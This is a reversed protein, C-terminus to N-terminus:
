SSEPRQVLSLAEEIKRVLKKMSFPKQVFDAVGRDLLAQAKEDMAYGSVMITTVKPNIEQMASFTAQGDMVPMVMDMIVLDIDRWNTRYFELAEGGNECLTARYGARSLIKSLVGRVVADDDVVLVHRGHETEEVAAHRQTPHATTSAGTKMSVPFYLDFRSGEGPSSEVCIAGNHHRMTGYVAPLGMGTGKGEEKTTFFPEFIRRKVDETMGDGEDTVSLLVFSGPEVDFLGVECPSTELDINLTEFGLVGGEPMADRANLALNLLANQVQTPDGLTTARTAKLTSEISIRKDISRQLMSIVEAVIRHLDIEVEHYKGRRAFALLQATLDASRQAALIISDALKKLGPRDSLDTSLLEACGMVGSLQNNFDHAIGGALQGIAEMKQAHALRQETEVLKDEALKLDTMDRLHEVVYEVRGDDGPVPYARCDLWLSTQPLHKEIRSPKGHKLADSTACPNCPETQGILEFCRRGVEQGPRLGLFEYGARNYRVIKHRRDQIGIVDPIADLVSELMQKAERLQERNQQLEEEIKKRKTVDRALAYILNGLPLSRWELWRYTGDLCRYRNEFNLVSRQDRLSGVAELTPEVDDPHVFDIFRAGELDSREYGLVREWEASLRLFHGDLDAICLLDLGMEFFRDLEGDFPRSTADAETM